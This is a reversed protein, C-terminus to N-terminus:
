VSMNDAILDEIYAWRTMTSLKSWRGNIYVTDSHSSYLATYFSSGCDREKYVFLEKCEKPKENTNHWVNDRLSTSAKDFGDEYAQEIDYGDFRTLEKRKRLDYLPYENREEVKKDAYQRALEEKTM